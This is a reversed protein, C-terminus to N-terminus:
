ETPLMSDGSGISVLIYSAMKLWPAGILYVLIVTSAKAWQPELVSINQAM